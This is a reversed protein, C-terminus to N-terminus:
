LSIPNSIKLAVSEVAVYETSPLIFKKVRVRAEKAPYSEVIREACEFALTEILKRPTKACFDTLDETMAAYDVTREISDRMGAFSEQPLVEVDLLLRQLNKREEEPVGVRAWVELSRIEIKEMFM